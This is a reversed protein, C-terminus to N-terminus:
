QVFVFFSIFFYFFTFSLFWVFIIIFFLKLWDCMRINSIKHHLLINHIYYCKRFIYIPRTMQDFRYLTYEHICKKKHIRVVASMYHTYFLLKKTNDFYKRTTRSINEHQRHLRKYIIYYMLNPKIEKISGTFMLSFEILQSVTAAAYLLKKTKNIKERSQNKEHM